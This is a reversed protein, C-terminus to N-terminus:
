NGDGAMILAFQVLQRRSRKSLRRWAALLLPDIEDAAEVQYVSGDEQGLLAAVAIKLAASVELLRDANLATEGSEWRSITSKDTKLRDALEAQSLGLAMRRALIAAGVDPGPRGADASLTGLLTDTSIDFLKAIATVTPLAPRITNSEWQSVAGSSVDLQEALSAQTWGRQKRAERIIDGLTKPTGDSSEAM